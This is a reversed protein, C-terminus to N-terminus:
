RQRFLLAKARDVFFAVMDDSADAQGDIRFRDAARDYRVDFREFPLVTTEGDAIHVAHVRFVLRNLDLAPTITMAIVHTHGGVSRGLRVFIEPSDDWERVGVFSDVRTSSERELPKAQAKVTQWLRQLLLVREHHDIQSRPDTPAPM